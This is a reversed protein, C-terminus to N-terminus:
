MPCVCHLPHWPDDDMPERCYCYSPTDLYPSLGLLHKVALKMHVDEM